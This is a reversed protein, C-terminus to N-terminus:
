AVFKRMDETMRDLCALIPGSQPQECFNGAIVLCHSQMPGRIIDELDDVARVCAVVDARPPDKDKAALPGGFFLLAAMLCGKWLYTVSGIM